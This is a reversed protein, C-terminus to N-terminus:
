LPPLKPAKRKILLKCKFGKHHTRSGSSVSSMKSQQLNHDKCFQNLGTIIETHNDPFTIEYTSKQKMDGVKKAEKYEINSYIDKMSLDYKARVDPNKMANHIGCFKKM